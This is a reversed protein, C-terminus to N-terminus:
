KECNLECKSVYKPRSAMFQQLAARNAMIIRSKEWLDGCNGFYNEFRTLLNINTRALLLFALLVM